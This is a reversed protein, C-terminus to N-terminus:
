TGRSAHRDADIFVAVGRRVREVGVDDVAASAHRPEIPAGALIRRDARHGPARALAVNRDTRVIGTARRAPPCACATSRAVVDQPLRHVAARAPLLDARVQSPLRPLRRLADALVEAVRGRLRLLAAHDVGDRRGVLVHPVDPRAGIVPQDVDGGVAAQRPLVDRRRPEVGHAFTDIM